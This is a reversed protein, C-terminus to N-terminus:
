YVMWRSHQTMSLFDVGAHEFGLQVRTTVHGIGAKGVRRWTKEMREVM